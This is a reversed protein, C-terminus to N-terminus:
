LHLLIYPLHPEIRDMREMIRDLHPEVIDLYQDLIRVIGPVHPGLISLRTYISPLHSVISTSHPLIKKTLSPEVVLRSGISFGARTQDALYSWPDAAAAVRQLLVRISENPACDQLSRFIRRTADKADRATHGSLVLDVCPRFASLLNAYLEIEALKGANSRGEEELVKYLRGAYLMDVLTSVAIGNKAKGSMAAALLSPSRHVLELAKERSSIAALRALVESVADSEVLLPTADAEIIKLAQDESIGLTQVLRPWRQKVEEFGFPEGLFNNDLVAEPHQRLVARWANQLHVTHDQNSLELEAEEVRRQAASRAAIAAVAAVASATLVELGAVTVAATEATAALPASAEAAAEAPKEGMEAAMEAAREERQEKSVVKYCGGMWWWAIFGAVVGLALLTVVIGGAISAGYLLSIALVVGPVAVFMVLIYILPVLRWYSAYFGLLCAAQPLNEEAMVSDHGELMEALHPSAMNQRRTCLRYAWHVARSEKTRPLRLGHGWAVKPVIRTRWLDRRLTTELPLSRIRAAKQLAAQERSQATPRVKDQWDKTFDVGLIRCRPQICDEPIGALRLRREQEETHCVLRLKVANEMLGLKVSWDRWGRIMSLIVEPAAATGARDDVFSTMCLDQGCSRQVSAFPGALLVVLALCSLADGQVLSRAVHEPRPAIAGGYEVWRHQNGWVQLILRAWNSPFGAEVMVRLCLAPSATDFCKEYDLSALIGSHARWFQELTIVATLAQQGEVAGYTHTPVLDRLWARTGTRAALASTLVRWFCSMVSIPRLNAPDTVSGDVVGDKPVQVQRLHKLIQPVRGQLLWRQVQAAMAQWVEVPLDAVEDGSFGDPGGGSGCLQRAAAQLEAATVDEWQLPHTDRGLAQVWDRAVEAINPVEPRTWYARWFETIVRIADEYTSTLTGDAKSVSPPLIGTTQSVWRTAAKGRQRMSHKWRNLNYRRQSRQESALPEEVDVALEQWSGKWSFGQPRRTWWKDAQAESLKGQKFFLHVFAIQLSDPKMVALAALMSTFTTGINAGLTMPLM